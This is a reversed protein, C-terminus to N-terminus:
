GPLLVAAGGRREDAAAALAGDATRGVAQV